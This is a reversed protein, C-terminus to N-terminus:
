AMGSNKLLAGALRSPVFLTMAGAPEDTEVFANPACVYSIRTTAVAATLMLTPSPVTVAVVLSGSSGALTGSYKTQVGPWFSAAIPVAVTCTVSLALQM